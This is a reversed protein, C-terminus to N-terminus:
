AQQKERLYNYAVCGSRHLEVVLVICKNSIRLLWNLKCM